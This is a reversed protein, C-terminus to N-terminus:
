PQWLPVAPLGHSVNQQFPTGLLTGLGAQFKQTARISILKGTNPTIVVRAVRRTTPTGSQPGTPDEGACSALIFLVCTRYLVSPSLRRILM